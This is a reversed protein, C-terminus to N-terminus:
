RPGPAVSGLIQTQPGSAFRYSAAPFESAASVVSSDRTARAPAPAAGGAGVRRSAAETPGHEAPGGGRGAWLRTIPEAGDRLPRQVQHPACARSTRTLPVTLESDCGCSGLRRGPFRSLLVFSPPFSVLLRIRWLVRFLCSIIIYIVHVTCICICIILQSLHPDEFPFPPAKCLQPASGARRGRTDHAALSGYLSTPTVLVTLM